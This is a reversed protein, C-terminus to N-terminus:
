SVLLCAAVHAHRMQVPVNLMLVIQCTMRLLLSGETRVEGETRGKLAFEGETCHV